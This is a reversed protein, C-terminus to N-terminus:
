QRRLQGSGPNVKFEIGAVLEITRINVPGCYLDCDFMPFDFAVLVDEAHILALM